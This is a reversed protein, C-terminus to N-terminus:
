IILLTKQRFEGLQGHKTIQQRVRDHPFGIQAPQALALLRDAIFFDQQGM